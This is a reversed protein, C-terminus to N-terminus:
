GRQQQRTAARVLDRMTPGTPKRKNPRPHQPPRKKPDTNVAALLDWLNAAMHRDVGWGQYERGGQTSAAYASTDPLGEVLALLIRPPVEDIADWLWVGHYRRFDSVLATGHKDILEGLALSGGGQRDGGM